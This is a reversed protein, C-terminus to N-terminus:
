MLVKIKEVRYNPQLQPMKHQWRDLFGQEFSPERYDDPIMIPIGSIIPFYRKCSNCTFLGELVQTPDERYIELQLDNKDFPCCMKDLKEPTM